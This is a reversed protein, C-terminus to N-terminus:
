KEQNAALKYLLQKIEQMDQELKEVRNSSKIVESQQKKAIERKNYYEELSTRDANLIAKSHTDRVYQPAEKVKLYTM